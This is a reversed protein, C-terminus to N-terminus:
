DGELTYDGDSRPALPVLKLEVAQRHRLRHEIVPELPVVFCERPNVGFLQMLQRAGIHHIQGDNRSRVPGPYVAYRLIGPGGWVGASM